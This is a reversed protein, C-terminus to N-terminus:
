HPLTHNPDLVQDCSSSIIVMEHLLKFLEETWHKWGLVIEAM